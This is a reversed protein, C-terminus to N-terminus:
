YTHFSSVVHRVAFYYLEVVLAVLARDLFCLGCVALITFLDRIVNEAVFLFSQFADVIRQQFRPFIDRGFTRM